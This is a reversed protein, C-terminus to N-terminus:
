LSASPRARGFGAFPQDRGPRRCIVRRRGSLGGHGRTSVQLQLLEGVLARRCRLDRAGAAVGVVCHAPRGARDVRDVRQTGYRRRAVGVDGGRQDLLEAPPSRCELPGAVDLPRDGIGAARHRQAVVRTGVGHFREIRRDREVSTPPQGHRQGRRTGEAFRARDAARHEGLQAGGPRARGGARGVRRACRGAVAGGRGGVVVAGTVLGSGGAGAPAVVACVDPPFCGGGFGASGEFPAQGVDEVPVELLILM